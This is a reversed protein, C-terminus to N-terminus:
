HWERGLREPNGGPAELIACHVLEPPIFSGALPPTWPSGWPNVDSTRYLVIESEGADFYSRASEQNSAHDLRRDAFRVSVEPAFVFGMRQFYGLVDSLASCTKQLEAPDDYVVDVGPHGCDGGENGRSGRPALAGAIGVGLLLSALVIQCRRLVVLQKEMAGILV